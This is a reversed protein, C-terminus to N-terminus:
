ALSCKARVARARHPTSIRDHDSHGAARARTVMRAHGTARLMKSAGKAFSRVVLQILARADYQNSLHRAGRPTSINTGVLAKQLELWLGERAGRAAM